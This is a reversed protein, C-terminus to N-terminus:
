ASVFMYGHESSRPWAAIMGPANPLAVGLLFESNERVNETAIAFNSTEMVPQLFGTQSIRSQLERERSPMACDISDSGEILTM